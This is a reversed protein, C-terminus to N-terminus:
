ARKCEKTAGIFVTSDDTQADTVSRCCSFESRPCSVSCLKVSFETTIEVGTVSASVNV